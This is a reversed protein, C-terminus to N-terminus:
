FGAANRFSHVMIVATLGLIASVAIGIVMIWDKATWAPEGLTLGKRILAPLLPGTLNILDEKGFSGPTHIVSIAVPWPRVGGQPYLAIKRPKRSFSGPIEVVEGAVPDIIGPDNKAPRAVGGEVVFKEIM